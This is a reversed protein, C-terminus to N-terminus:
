MIIVPPMYVRYLRISRDVSRIAIIELLPVRFLPEILHVSRACLKCSSIWSVADGGAKGQVDEELGRGAYHKAAKRWSQAQVIAHVERTIDTPDFSPDSLRIQNGSTTKWAVLGVPAWELDKVTAQAAQM